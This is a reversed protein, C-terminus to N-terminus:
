SMGIVPKGGTSQPSGPAVRRVRRLVIRGATVFRGVTVSRTQGSLVVEVFCEQDAAAM